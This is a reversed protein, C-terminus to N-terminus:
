RLSNNQVEIIKEIKKLDKQYEDASIDASHLPLYGLGLILFIIPRIKNLSVAKKILSVYQKKM